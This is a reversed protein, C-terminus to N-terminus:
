KTFSPASEVPSALGSYNSSQVALINSGPLLPTHITWNSSSGTGDSLAAFGNATTIVGNNINTVWYAVNLVRVIRPRAASFRPTPAAARRRPPLSPFSLNKPLSLQAVTSTVAAASNSVVVPYSGADASAALNVTLRRRDLRLYKASM